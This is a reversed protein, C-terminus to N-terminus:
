IGGGFRGTAIFVVAEGAAGTDTEREIGVARLSRTSALIKVVVRIAAIGRLILLAPLLRFAHAVLRVESCRPAPVRLKTRRARELAGLM